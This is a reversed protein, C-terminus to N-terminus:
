LKKDSQYRVIWQDGHPGGTVKDQGLKDVLDFYRKKADDEVGYYEDYWQLDHTRGAGARLKKSVTLSKKAKGRRSMPKAIRKVSKLYTTANQLIGVNNKFAGLGINCSHCIMVFQGNLEDEHGFKLIPEKCITCTDNEM